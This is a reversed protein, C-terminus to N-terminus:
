YKLPNKTSYVSLMNERTMTLSSIYKLYVTPSISEKFNRTGDMRGQVRGIGLIVASFCESCMNLFFFFVNITFCNKLIIHCTCLRGRVHKNLPKLWKWSCHQMSCLHATIAKCLFIQKQKISLKLYLVVYHEKAWLYCWRLFSAVLELSFIHDFYSLFLSPLADWASEQLFISGM